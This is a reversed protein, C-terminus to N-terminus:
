LRKSSGSSVSNCKRNRRDLNGWITVHSLEKGDTQNKDFAVEKAFEERVM